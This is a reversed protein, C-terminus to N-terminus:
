QRVSGAKNYDALWQAHETSVKHLTTGETGEPAKKESAMSAVTPVDVFLSKVSNLCIGYVITQRNENKADVLQHDLKLAIDYLESKFRNAAVNRRGSQECWIRYAPYLHDSSEEGAKYQGMQNEVEPDLFCEDFMWDAVSSGARMGLQNEEVVREPLNEFARHIDDVPMQLLWRILGPIEEHLISEEGGRQQWDKREDATVLKSFRVAIRRRELGSDSSAIDDNTALLFLGGYIFSANQQQHKIELPIHDRGSMAKLMNLQGGFRGAENILALSKGHHKATEFRNNELNSLTSTATNAEGIMKVALRQFVGKGSGGRGILMLIYQLPMGRILAALWARLLNYTDWDHDVAALLWSQINNCEATEDYDHPLIWDTSYEPTAPKLEVTGIDLLGNKFPVVNVPRKSRKLVGTLQMQRVIANLYVQQYGKSGCGKDVITAVLSITKDTDQTAKWHNGTWTLWSKSESDFALKDRLHEAVVKAAMSDILRSVKDGTEVLLFATGGATDEPM